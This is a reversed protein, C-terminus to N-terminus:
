ADGIRGQVAARPICHREIVALQAVSLNPAALKHIGFQSVKFQRVEFKHVHIKAILLEVAVLGEGVEQRFFGSGDLRSPKSTTRLDHFLYTMFRLRPGM